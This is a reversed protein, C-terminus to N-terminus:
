DIVWEGEFAATPPEARGCPASGAQGTSGAQRDTLARQAPTRRKAVAQRHCVTM